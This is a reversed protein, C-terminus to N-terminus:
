ANTENEEPFREYSLDNIESKSETTRKVKRDLKDRDIEEQERRRDEELSTLRQFSAMGAFELNSEDSM